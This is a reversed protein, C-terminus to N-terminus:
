AHAETFTRGAEALERLVPSPLLSEDGAAAAFTELRAVVYPLGARDAYYMPGGRWAPWGYGNMWIVDIDSARAAIGESLIRAGENVMPFILREIIEAATIARRQVGLTASVEEILREVDPDVVGERAGESYIYYGKGTKQGFGGASAFRM